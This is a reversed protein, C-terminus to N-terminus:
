DESDEDAKRREELERMKKIHESLKRLDTRSAKPRKKAAAGQGRAYPDYSEDTKIALPAKGPGLIELVRREEDSPADRWSVFANGREDHEVKGVRRRESDSQADSPPQPRNKFSRGV